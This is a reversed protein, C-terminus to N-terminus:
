GFYHLFIDTTILCMLKYFYYSADWPFVQFLWVKSFHKKKKAGIAEQPISSDYGTLLQLTKDNEILDFTRNTERVGHDKCAFDLAGLWAGM